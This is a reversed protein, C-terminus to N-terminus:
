PQAEERRTRVLFAIWLGVLLAWGLAAVVPAADVVEGQAGPYAAAVRVARLDNEAGTVLRWALLEAHADPTQEIGAYAPVLPQGPRAALIRVSVLFAYSGADSGSYVGDWAVDGAVSGDDHLPIIRTEGLRTLEVAAADIRLQESVAVQFSIVQDGAVALAPAPSATSVILLCLALRLLTTTM